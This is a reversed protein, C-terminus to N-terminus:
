GLGLDAEEDAILRNLEPRPCLISPSPAGLELEVPVLVVVEVVTVEPLFDELRDLYEEEGLLFLPAM